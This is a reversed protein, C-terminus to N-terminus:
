QELCAHFLTRVFVEIFSRVFSNIVSQSYSHIFSRPVTENILATHYKFEIVM